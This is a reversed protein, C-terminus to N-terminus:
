LEDITSERNRQNELWGEFRSGLRRARIKTGATMEQLQPDDYDVLVLVRSAQLFSDYFKVQQIVEEANQKTIKVEGLVSKKTWISHQRVHWSPQPDGNGKNLENTSSAKTVGKTVSNLRKLRWVVPQVFRRLGSLSGRRM